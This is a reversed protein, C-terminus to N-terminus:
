EGSTEVGIAKLWDPPMEIMRRTTTDFVGIIYDATCCLKNQSNFVEHFIHMVKKEINICKTKITIKERLKLERLYKIQIELIVPGIKKEQIEAVSYGQGAIIDWRAEELIQLYTANNMHGFTDLHSELVLLEYSFEKANKIEVM